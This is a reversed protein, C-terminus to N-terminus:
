VEEECDANSSMGFRPTCTYQCSCPAAKSEPFTAFRTSCLLASSTTATTNLDAHTLNSWAHHLLHLTNAWVAAAFTLITLM